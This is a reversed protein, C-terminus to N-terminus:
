DLAEDDLFAIGLEQLIRLSAQHIEEIQDASAIEFPSYPNRPQKWPKQQIGKITRSQARGKRKRERSM